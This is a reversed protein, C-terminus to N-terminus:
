RATSSRAGQLAASERSGLLVFPAWFGPGSRREERTHRGVGRTTSEIEEKAINGNESAEDANGEKRLFELKASRLAGALTEGALWADYFAQMFDSTAADDVDWLSVVLSRAGALRFARSLGLLGEGRLVKGRGTDCASLTVLDQNFSHRLVEFSQVFGDSSSPAGSSDAAFPTPSPALILGSYAPRNDDVLAHAAVHLVSAHEAEAFFRTETADDGVFARSGAVRSALQLVERRAFPLPRLEADRPTSTDSSAGEAGPLTPDGFAVLAIERPQTSADARKTEALWLTASPAYIVEARELILGRTGDSSVADLAEFPLCHLADDAVVVLRTIDAPWNGFLTDAVAASKTRWDTGARMAEVLTGVRERVEPIGWLIERCEVGRSTALFFLSRRNGVMAAFFAENPALAATLEEASAPAGLGLERAYDPAERQMLRVLDERRGELSDADANLDAFRPSREAVPKAREELLNSQLAALHEEAHAIEGALEPRVRQPLGPAGSGYLRRLERGRCRELAAFSDPVRGLRFYARALDVVDNYYRDQYGAREEGVTLGSRVTESWAIGRELQVLAEANRGAELLAGGLRLGTTCVNLPDALGEFTALAGELVPIAEDPRGNSLLLDGLLSRGRAQEPINERKAALATQSSDLFAIAEDIRDLGVLSEAIGRSIVWPLGVDDADGDALIGRFLSLAEEWRESAALIDAEQTRLHAEGRRHKAARAVALGRQTLALARDYDGLDLYVTGLHLLPFVLDISKGTREAVRLCEELLERGREVRGIILEESAWADLAGALQDPSSDPRRALDLAREAFQRAELPHGLLRHLQRINTLTTLLASSDGATEAVRLNTEFLELARELNGENKAVLGLGEIAACEQDPHRRARALELAEEYCQRAAPLNGARRQCNGLGNLCEITEYRPSLGRLLVMAQERLALSKEFDSRYAERGAVILASARSAADGRAEAERVLNEVDSAATEPDKTPPRTRAMLLLTSFADDDRGHERYLEAAHRYEARSSDGEGRKHLIAAATVHVAPHMPHFAAERLAAECRSSDEAAPENGSYQSGSLAAGLLWGGLLDDPDAALREEARRVREAAGARISRERVVRDVFPISDVAGATSLSTVLLLTALDTM